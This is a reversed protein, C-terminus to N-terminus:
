HKIGIIKRILLNNDNRAITFQNISSVSIRLYQSQPQWGSINLVNPRGSMAANMADLILECPISQAPLYDYYSGDDRKTLWFVIEDYGRFDEALTITSPNATLYSQEYLVKEKYTGGEGSSSGGYTVGYVKIVGNESGSGLLKQLTTNTFQFKASRQYYSCITFTGPEFSNILPDVLLRYQYSSKWQDSVDSQASVIEVVVEDYNRIDGNLTLANGSWYINGSNDDVYDWLLDIRTNAGGGFKLGKIKYIQPTLDGGRASFKFTTNTFTIEGWRTSYGAFHLYFNNSLLDQVTCFVTDTTEIPSMRSRDEYTNWEVVIADYKSLNDLLAVDQNFPAGMTPSGSDYLLSESFGSGDGGGSGLVDYVTDGIKITTLTDTPEETPNAEVNSGGGGSKIGFIQYVAPVYDGGDNVVTFSDETNFTIEISRNGYEGFRINTYPKNTLPFHADVMIPISSQHGTTRDGYTSIIIMLQDYNTIADNLTYTVNKVSGNLDSGSDWLLACNYLGGSSNGGLKLGKIESIYVSYQDQRVFTTDNTISFYVYWSDNALGFRMDDNIHAKLYSTLWIGSISYDVNNYTNKGVLMVADYNEFSESLTMTASDSGSWLTTERYVSGGGGSGAIDFVTGDIEITSLTDTPEGQPNPVVSSGGSGNGVYHLWEGDIKGFIDSIDVNEIPPAPSTNDVFTLNTINCDFRVGDNVDGFSWKLQNTSGAVFTLSYEHENTDRSFITTDSVVGTGFVSISSNYGTWPFTTGEAFQFTFTVTYEDGETLGDMVFNIEDATNSPYGYLSIDYVNGGKDEFTNLEITTHTYDDPNLFSVNSSRYKLYVSNERGISNNPNSIGSLVIDNVGISGNFVTNNNQDITFVDDEDGNANVVKMGKTDTNDEGSYVYIDGAESLTHSEHQLGDLVGVYLNGDSRLTDTAGVISSYIVEQAYIKNTVYIDEAQIEGMFKSHYPIFLGCENTLTLQYADLTSTVVEIDEGIVPDSVEVITMENYNLSLETEDNFNLTRTVVDGHYALGNEDYKFDGGAFSFYGKELDLHTGTGDTLSYNTSYIDGSVITSGSIYGAIVFDASLGYNEKTEYSDTEPNYMEYSHKGLASVTHEWNDKTFAIMNSTIHLQEPSYTGLADDYYRAWIGHQDIQIDRNSGATIGIDASDIGNTKTDDVFDKADEGQSAQHAVYDYTTSMSSARSLIDAVDSVVDNVRVANSFTINIEAKNAYNYELEILRLRYNKDGARCMIWDGIEFEDKFNAFEETNLLNVFSGSLTYQLESAKQIETRAVDLLEKAKKIVEANDLGTSIYNSNNYSDERLYLIFIRYFEEGLYGRLNLMDKIIDMQKVTEDIREQQENVQAERVVMEADIWGKRTYYPVYVSEYIPIKYVEANENAVNQKILVELVAQYSNSFSTLRDLSYLKLAEKFEDDDEINFITVFSADSKDLTKDIKQRLFEEYNGNVTIIKYDESIAKDENGKDDVGGLSTVTIIGQWTRTNTSPNLASLTSSSVKVTYRPDIIARCYGQVSLDASALSVSSINQVAVTFSTSMLIDLQEKATTDKPIEAEPMMKTQYYLKQDVADYYDEVLKEYQPAYQDYLRNYGVMRKILEDPMEAITDDSFRYIYNTGNPNLNAVTATILDDGGTVKFCNKVSDADGDVTIESAFNDTSIFVNRYVGYGRTVDTSGCEPCALSFDSRNGCKNCTNWLDYVDIMRNVSDFKFLCGIETGVTNVLFDYITSGDATFTRQINAISEDVHRVTWDPCKDALVRNLLSGRPNDPNYLVTVVYDDMLIDTEDNCHFDRLYRQSLECEGASKGTCHKITKNSEDLDVQIEYYEEHQPVYIYKFDEIQGWLSCEVGDKEKYVDFSIEQHSAMTFRSSIDPSVNEIIGLKKHYRTSLIITPPTIEYMM